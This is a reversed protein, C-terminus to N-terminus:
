GYRRIQEAVRRATNDRKIDDDREDEVAHIGPRVNELVFVLGLTAIMVALFIIIPLTKGRKGVITALKPLPSQVEQVLVRFPTPTDAARQNRQVYLIIARAQDAALAAARQPSTGLGKVSILPLIAPNSYPPAPVTAVLVDTPKAPRHRMLRQVQNTTALQAYLVAQSSLRNADATPVAPLGQTPNAPEYQPTTTGWPFGRQTVFLVAESQWTQAQRYKLTPAGGAFSVKAFSLVALAVAIALGGAVLPRFRWLVRLYLQMDM